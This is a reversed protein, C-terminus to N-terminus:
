ALDLELFSSVFLWKREYKRNRKRSLVPLFPFHFIAQSSLRMASSPSANLDKTLPLVTFQTDRSTIGRYVGPLLDNATTTKKVSSEPLVTLTTKTSLHRPLLSIVSFGQSNSFSWFFLSVIVKKFVFKM